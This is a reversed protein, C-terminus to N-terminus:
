ENTPDAPGLPSADFVNTTNNNNLSALRWGTDDFAALARIGMTGFSGALGRLEFVHAGGDTEWFQLTGWMDVAALRRGDPSLCLGCEGMKMAARCRLAGDAVTWVDIHKNYAQAALWTGDRSFTLGRRWEDAEGLTRVIKGSEADWLYIKGRFGAHAILRGDPSVAVSAMNEWEAKSPYDSVDNADLTRWRAGSAADSATVVYAYRGAGHLQASAPAAPGRRVAHSAIVRRGDPSFVLATIAGPGPPSRLLRKAPAVEWIEFRQTSGCARQRGPRRRGLPRSAPSRRNPEAALGNAPRGGRNARRVLRSRGCSRLLTMVKTGGPSFNLAGRAGYGGHDLLLGRQDGSADWVKVLGAHDGTALRKGDAHFAVSEVIETPGRITRVLEGSDLDWLRVEPTDGVAALRKGDPHFAVDRLSGVFGTLKHVLRGTSADLVRARGDLAATALWRGDDSFAIKVVPSDIRESAWRPAGKGDYLRM